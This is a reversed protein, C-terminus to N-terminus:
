APSRRDPAPRLITLLVAGMLALIGGFALARPSGALTWILGVAVSSVLDAIGNIGALVGFATGTIADEVLSGTISNETASVLPAQIGVALALWAVAPPGHGAIGIGCAAAFVAYAFALVPVRGVRDALWGGPFSALTGVAQHAIYFLVAGSLAAPRSLEPQLMEAARLTFFAPAFNGLGFVFVAATLRWFSAPLPAWRPAPRPAGRLDRTLLAFLLVCAVGPIVAVFFVARFGHGTAILVFAVTPGLLAGLTDLAEHFGFAKGYDAREVSGAQMSSRIPQRVGRGVWALGRAVVVLPWISILGITALGAVTAAYGGAALSKRWAIRDSYWGSAVRVLASSGDAVGEVLGVAYAPAGLGATLFLPLVALVMEYNFDAMLDALGIALVNRNLWLRPVPPAVPRQNM